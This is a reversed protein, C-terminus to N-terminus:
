ELEIKPKRPIAPSEIEKSSIEIEIKYEEELVEKISNLLKNEDERNLYPTIGSGLCKPVFKQTFKNYESFDKNLESFIEKINKTKNLLESIKDFLDFKKSSAQIILIKKLSGKNEIFKAIEIFLDEIIEEKSEIENDIYKEYKTTFEALSALNEGDENLYLEESIHPIVPTMVKVYDTFIFRIADLMSEESSRRILYSIDNLVEYLAFVYSERIKLENMNEFFKQANSYFRSVFWKQIESLDDYSKKNCTKAKTMIEVFKDFKKKLQVIEDDRFDMEIDFNSSTAIYLRYLDAGFESSVKILPVGNGKSKSIKEGNRNLMGGVVGTKPLFKKLEPKDFIISYHYILFSMHNSMHPQGVYRFDLNCWYDVESKMESVIEKPIKFDNSGIDLYLYDFLEETLEEPSINERRIIGSVIYFLQYITSDSLPEIIWERDTPLNTGLGRKRACPRKQVWELYGKQTAKLKEPLYNMEDLLDYAKQKVEDNSYDLFWQGDLNAVIVDNDSRTKARRSTEYFTGSLGLEILKKKIVDKAQKIFLGNFEGANENLKGGFHEEKYLETKALEIKEHELSTKVGFKNCKDEAPCSGFYEIKNKKKDYTEVTLIPNLDGPLRGESKAECLAMFDHPSGAPSSYVIGTGQKSDIFDAAAVIVKKETIPTIVFKGIFESGMVEEIIEVNDFQHTIKNLSDKGVLWKKGDVLLKLLKMEPNIWLNTTGFLADPRLTTIVAYLDEETFKFLIYDMEQISVKDIDGDKIDDEGVANKDEASYLIPYKGQVLINKQELKKFQWEVFKNYIPEGTVFQRTWDIGIGVSKLSNAITPTFFETIKFPEVFGKIIEDAESESVYNLMADRTIKIQKTDGRKINDAVALVPTGSAHFGMPFLVNKGLLRQFRLFIEATTFTRGHGIHLESNAYPYAVTGFYKPKNKDASVEFIKKDEWAKQWKREIEQNNISDM